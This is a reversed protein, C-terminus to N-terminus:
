KIDGSATVTIVKTLGYGAVTVNTSVPINTGQNLVKFLMPNASPLPTVGIGVVERSYGESKSGFTVAGCVGEITYSNAAFTVRWGTLQRSGCAVTDKVGSAANAQAQRLAGVVKEAAGDVAQRRAAQRYGVLGAGGLIVLLSIAVLIEILTFGRRM